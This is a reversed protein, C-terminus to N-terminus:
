QNIQHHETGNDALLKMCMAIKNEYISMDHKKEELTKVLQDRNMQQKTYLENFSTMNNAFHEVRQELYKYSRDYECKETYKQCHLFNDRNLKM